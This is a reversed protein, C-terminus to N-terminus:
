HLSFFPYLLHTNQLLYNRESIVPLHCRNKAISLVLLLDRKAIFAAKSIISLTNQQQIEIHREEEKDFYM